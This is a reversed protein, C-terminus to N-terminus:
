RRRRAGAPRRAAFARRHRARRRVSAARPTPRSRDARREAEDAGDVVADQGTHQAGIAFGIGADRQVQALQGRIHLQAIQVVDRMSAPMSSAGTSSALRAVSGSSRSGSTAAMGAVSGSARRPRRTDSPRAPSAGKMRNGRELAGPSCSMITPKQRDVRAERRADRLLRNLQLGDDAEDDAPRPTASTGADNISRRREPTTTDDTARPMAASSRPAPTAARCDCRGAQCFKTAVARLGDRAAAPVVRRRVTDYDAGM